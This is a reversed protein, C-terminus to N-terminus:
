KMEETPIGEVKLWDDRNSYYTVTGPYSNTNGVVFYQYKHWVNDERGNVLRKLCWTIPFIQHSGVKLPFSFEGAPLSNTAWTGGHNRKIVEGLYAGAIMAEARQDKEPFAKFWTSRGVGDMIQEELRISNPSFDLAIRYRTWADLVAQEAMKELKSEWSEDPSIAALGRMKDLDKPPQNSAGCGFLTFSLFLLLAEARIWKSHKKLM